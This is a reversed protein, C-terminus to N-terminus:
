GRAEGMLTSKQEAGVARLVSRLEALERNYQDRQAYEVEEQSGVIKDYLGTIEVTIGALKYGDVDPAGVHLLVKGNKQRTIGTYIAGKATADTAERQARSVEVADVITSAWDEYLVVEDAPPWESSGEPLGTLRRATNDMWTATDRRWKYHGIRCLTTVRQWFDFEARIGRWRSLWEFM